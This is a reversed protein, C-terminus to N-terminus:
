LLSKIFFRKKFIIIKQKVDFITHEAGVSEVAISIVLEVGSGIM